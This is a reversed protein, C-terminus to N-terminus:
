WTERWGPYYQDMKVGCIDSFIERETDTWFDFKAPAKGKNSHPFAKGNAHLGLRDLFGRRVEESEVLDELRIFVDSIAEIQENSHRWFHCVQEFITGDFRPKIRDWITGSEYWNRNLGSQCVLRGDRVLHVVTEALVLHPVVAFHSASEINHLAGLMFRSIAEHDKELIWPLIYESLTEHRATATEGDTFSMGDLYNIITTTGCRGSGSILVRFPSISPQVQFEHTGRLIRRIKSSHGVNVKLLSNRDLGRIIIQEKDRPFDVVQRAGRIGPMSVRVSLDRQWSRHLKFLEIGDKLTSIEIHAEM